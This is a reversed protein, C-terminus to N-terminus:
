PARAAAPEAAARAQPVYDFSGKRINVFFLEPASALLGRAGALLVAGGDGPALVLGLATAAAGVALNVAGLLPRVALADDTFFLFYSDNAGHRYLTSSLTNSERLAVPLAGEAAAMRALAVRRYSPIEREGEIPYRAAVADASVFPIVALPGDADIRRALPAGAGGGGDTLAADIGRFLESVCNHGV